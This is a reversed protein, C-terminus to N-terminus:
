PAMRRREGGMQFKPATGGWHTTTRQLTANSNRFFFGDFREIENINGKEQPTAGGLAKLREPIPNRKREKEEQERPLSVWVHSYLEFGGGM